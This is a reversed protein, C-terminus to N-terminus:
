TVETLPLNWRTLNNPGLESQRNSRFRIVLYFFVSLSFLFSVQHRICFVLPGSNGFTLYNFSSGSVYQAGLYVIRSKSSQLTLMYKINFSLREDSVTINGDDDGDSQVKIADTNEINFSAMANGFM